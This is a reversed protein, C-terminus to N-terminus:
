TKRSANSIVICITLVCITSTTAKEYKKKHSKLGLSAVARWTDTLKRFINNVSTHSCTNSIYASESASEKKTRQIERYVNKRESEIMITMKTLIKEYIYIYNKTMM